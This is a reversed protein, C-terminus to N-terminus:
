LVLGCNYRLSFLRLLGIYDRQRFCMKKYLPNISGNEIVEFHGILDFSYINHVASIFFIRLVGITNLCNCARSFLSYFLLLSFYFFRHLIIQSAPTSGQGRDWLQIKANKGGHASHRGDARSCLNAHPLACFGLVSSRANWKQM